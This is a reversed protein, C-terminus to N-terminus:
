LDPAPVPAGAAALGRRLWEDNREVRGRFTVNVRRSVLVYCLWALSSVLGVIDAARFGGGLAFILLAMAISLGALIVYWTPFASSKRILLIITVLNLVQLILVAVFLAVFPGGYPLLAAFQILAWLGLLGGLIMMALLLGTWGGIGNLPHQAAIEPPLYVWNGEEHIQDARIVPPPTETPAM